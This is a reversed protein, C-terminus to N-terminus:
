VVEANKLSYRRRINEQLEKTDTQNLQKKRKEILMFLQTDSDNGNNNEDTDSLFLGFRHDSIQQDFVVGQDESKSNREQELKLKLMRPPLNNRYHSKTAKEIERKKAKRKERKRQAKTLGKEEQKDIDKMSQLIEEIYTNEGIKDDYLESYKYRMNECFVAALLSASLSTEQVKHWVKHLRQYIYIGVVVIIENQAQPYTKAHRAHGNSKLHAIMESEAKRLLVEINDDHITVHLHDKYSKNHNEPDSTDSQVSTENKGCNAQHFRIGSFIKPNMQDEYDEESNQEYSETSTNRTTVNDETLSKLAKYEPDIEDTPCGPCGPTSNAIAKVNNKDGCNVENGMPRTPDILYYYAAWIQDRCDKCFSHRDLYKEVQEYLLGCDITCLESKCHKTLSNWVGMWSRKMDERSPKGQTLGFYGLIVNQNPNNNTYGIETTIGNMDEAQLDFNSDDYDAQDYNAKGPRALKSRTELNALSDICHLSCRSKRMKLSSTLTKYRDSLEHIYTYLKDDNDLISSDLKFQSKDIYINTFIEFKKESSLTRGKLLLIDYMAEVAKRCGVCPIIKGLRGVLESKNMKGIYVRDNYSYYTKMKEKFTKKSCSHNLTSKACSIPSHMGSDGNISKISIDDENKLGNQSEKTSANSNEISGNEISKIENNSNGHSNSSVDGNTFSNGLFDKRTLSSIEPYEVVFRLQDDIEIEMQCTEYQYNQTAVGKIKM